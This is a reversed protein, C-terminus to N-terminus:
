GTWQFLMISFDVINVKGDKNIDAIGLGKAQKTNWWFLMVSFDVINVKGEKNLDATKLPGGKGVFFQLVHSFPSVLSEFVARSKTTHEEETLSTTNLLLAYAGNSDSIVKSVKEESFVHVSVESAPEAYGFIRVSQGKAVSTSSIDITPPMLVNTLSTSTNATVTVTFGITISKRNSTDASFLNVLRSGAAVSSLTIEFGSNSNVDIQSVFVGDLLVNVTSKPYATGKIVITGTGSPAPATYGGGGGGGGGGGSAPTPTPTAAAAPAATKENSEAIVNKAAIGDYAQIKFTYTTGNTLGTKTASVGTSSTDVCTYSGTSKHCVNYGGINWGSYATAATWSLVVQADGATATNLVPAVVKPYYLFGSRLGFNTSSASGIAFDGMVTILGFLTSSASALGGVISHQADLIKFNTSSMSAGQSIEAYAFNSTLLYLTSFLIIVFFRIKQKRKGQM